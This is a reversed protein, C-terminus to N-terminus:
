HQPTYAILMVRVICIRSNELSVQEWQQQMCHLPWEEVAVGAAIWHRTRKFVRDIGTLGHVHM